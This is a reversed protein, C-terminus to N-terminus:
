SWGVTFSPFTQPYMTCFSIATHARVSTVVVSPCVLQGPPMKQKSESLFSLMGALLVLGQESHSKPQTELWDSRSLNLECCQGRWRCHPAHVSCIRGLHLHELRVAAGTVLRSSLSVFWWDQQECNPTAHTTPNPPPHVCMYCGEQGRGGTAWCM